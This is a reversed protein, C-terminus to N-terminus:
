LRAKVRKELEIRRQGYANAQETMAEGGRELWTPGDALLELLASEMRFLTMSRPGYLKLFDGSALEYIANWSYGRDWTTLVRAGDSPVGADLCAERCLELWPADDHVATEDSM